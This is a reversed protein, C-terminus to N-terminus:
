AAQAARVGERLAAIRATGRGPVRLAKALEMVQAFTMSELEDGAAVEAVLVPAAVPRAADEALAEDHARKVAPGDEPAFWFTQAPRVTMTAVTTVVTYIRTKRQRGTFSSGYSDVLESTISLVRAVTATKRRAPVWTKGGRYSDVEDLLVRTGPQVAAATVTRTM